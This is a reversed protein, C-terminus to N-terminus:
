ALTQLVRSAPEIGAAAECFTVARPDLREGSPHRYRPVAPPPRNPPRPQGTPDLVRGHRDTFTLGGPEDANGAIGLLGDHHARHHRGCLAVLNATDTRGGNEWHIIHHIQLFRRHECGPVACQSDRHEILRRTRDPVIRQNRGISVPIGHREWVPRVDTDCTLLRRLTDPLPADLHLGAVGPGSPRTPETELHALVVYRDTRPTVTEGAALSTEAVALLADAMCVRQERDRDPDHFLDHHAGHLAREVVAGEDAPLEARMRWQGADDTWAAVHRKPKATPEPEFHYRSLTRALQSVTANRAFVAASDDYAAPVHRAVVSAQDLSVEGASLAATTAPLESSREALRVLRRAHGTSCGLKWCLWHVPTHLGPQAWAKSELARAVLEVMRGQAANVVGALQALEGQLSHLEREEATAIM